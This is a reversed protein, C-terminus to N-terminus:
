PKRVGFGGTAPELGAVGALKQAEVGGRASMLLSLWTECSEQRWQRLALYTVDMFFQILKPGPHTRRCVPFDPIKM